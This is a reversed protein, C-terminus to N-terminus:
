EKHIFSSYEKQMLYLYKHTKICTIKHSARDWVLISSLCISVKKGITNLNGKCRLLKLTLKIHTQESLCFMYM